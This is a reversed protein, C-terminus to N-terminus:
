IVFLNFYWRVLVEGWFLYILTGAVLFPGFPLAMKSDGKQLLMVPIGVLSGLLSSLFVVPLIVRWGCFAGIMALLKIDGGGMGEKKTFFEYLFAVAFLSGGGVLVGILSDKWSVWPIAFSCIFGIPIGPLTIVDPIIQHDYDIFTVVVLASVFLFLVLTVMSFRAYYFVLCYLAGNLAEIGPYRWSFSAGCFACRGRLFLFSLIPINHYWRLRSDCSFCHSPPFVVSKGLPIRYICVNLFSGIVAGLVFVFLWIMMLTEDAFLGM